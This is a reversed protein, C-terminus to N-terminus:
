SVPVWLGISTSRRLAMTAYQPLSIDAPLRFRATAGSSVDLSKLNVLNSGNLNSVVVIQGDTVNTAAIGTLDAAGATPNLELFGVGVNLAYDSTTGSPINYSQVGTPNSIPSYVIWGTIISDPDNTNSPLTNQFFKSPTVASQVIAGVGYGGVVTIVDPNFPYCGGAQIWAIHASVDFLIGNMDKGDPPIGGATPDTYTAPPFGLNFSAAGPTPSPIVPIVNRDGLTAFAKVLSPPVPTTAM